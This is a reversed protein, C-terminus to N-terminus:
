NAMRKSQQSELYLQIGQRLAENKIWQGTTCCASCTQFQYYIQHALWSVQQKHSTLGLGPINPCPGLLYQSWKDQPEGRWFERFSCQRGCCKAISVFFWCVEALWHVWNQLTCRGMEAVLKNTNHRPKHILPGWKTAYTVGAWTFLQSMSFVRISPPVPPLLLLPRCLIPHSSPM